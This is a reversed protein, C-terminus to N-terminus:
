LNITQVHTHTRIAVHQIHKTHPESNDCHRCRRRSTKSLNAQLKYM